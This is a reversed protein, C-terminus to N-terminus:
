VAAGEPECTLCGLKIRSGLVTLSERSFFFLPLQLSPEAIFLVPQEELLDPEAELVWM